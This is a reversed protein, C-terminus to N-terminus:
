KLGRSLVINFTTTSNFFSIGEFYALVDFSYILLRTNWVEYQRFAARLTQNTYFTKNAEVVVFHKGTLVLV